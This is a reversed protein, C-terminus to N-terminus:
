KKHAAVRTLAQDIAAKFSKPTVRSDPSVIKPPLSVFYAQYRTALDIAFQCLIPEKTPYIRKWQMPQNCTCRILPRSSRVALPTNCASCQFVKFPKM